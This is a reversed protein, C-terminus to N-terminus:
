ENNKLTLSHIFFYLKCHLPVMKKIESFCILLFNAKRGGICNDIKFILNHRQEKLGHKYLSLNTIGSQLCFMIDSLPCALQALIVDRLPLFLVPTGGSWIHLWLQTVL